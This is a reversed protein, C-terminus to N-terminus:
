WYQRIMKEMQYQDRMERMKKDTSHMCLVQPINTGIKPRVTCEVGEMKKCIKKTERGDKVPQEECYLILASKQDTSSEGERPERCFRQPHSPGQITQSDCILYVVEGRKNALSQQTSACGAASCLIVAMGMASFISKM